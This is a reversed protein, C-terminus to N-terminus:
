PSRRRRAKGVMMVKSKKLVCSDGWAAHQVIWRDLICLTQSPRAPLPECGRGSKCRHTV